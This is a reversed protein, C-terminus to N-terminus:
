FLFLALFLLVMPIIKYSASSKVYLCAPSECQLVCKPYQVVCREEPQWSCNVPECLVECNNAPPCVLPQCTTECMPCSELTTQDFPCNVSCQLTSCENPNGTTCHISCTPPDCIPRSKLQCTPNDCAWSCHPFGEGTAVCQSFLFFCFFYIM